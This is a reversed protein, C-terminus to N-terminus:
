PVVANEGRKFGTLLAAPAALGLGLGLLVTQAAVKAGKSDGVARGAAQLPVRTGDVATVERLEWVIRGARGWHGNREAKLVRATATAGQAIVTVGDIIVPNVVRFSVPDNTRTTMSDITHAMELEVRMGTPIRVSAPVNSQPAKPEVVSEAEGVPAAVAANRPPLMAMIVADPAGADRLRHLADSSTDFTARSSKIKAVITDTPLGADLMALVDDSTLPAVASAPTAVKNTPTAVSTM